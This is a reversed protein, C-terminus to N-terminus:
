KKGRTRISLEPPAVTVKSGPPVSETIWVNGGIVSQDGITIDGLITAGSYITVNDEINPHRKKGKILRGREDKPFSLAGLTVGQYIKVNDGIVATEGIVVGTGHDIFFRKGIKAGPHIDIGTLTHAHESMLRPILPVEASYLEHAVRHIAIAKLGPYSSVVEDTSKAAPDGDMAAQVDTKLTERIRPVNELLGIVADEAMRLCDCGECCELKCRYAYARETQESLKRFIHDVHNGIVYQLSTRHYEHRGTYGPFLVELLTHLVGLVIDSQPMFAGDIHNIGTEDQYTSNIADTVKRALDLTWRSQFNRAAAATCTRSPTTNKM